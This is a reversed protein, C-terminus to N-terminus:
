HYLTAFVSPVLNRIGLGTARKVVTCKGKSLLIPYQLVVTTIPMKKILKEKIIFMCLFAVIILKVVVVTKCLTM